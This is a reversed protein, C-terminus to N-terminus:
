DVETINFTRALGLTPEVSYPKHQKRGIWSQFQPNSDWSPCTKLRSKLSGGHQSHQISEEQPIVWFFAYLMNKLTSIVVNIANQKILHRTNPKDKM